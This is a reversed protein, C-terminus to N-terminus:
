FRMGRTAREPMSPMSRGGMRNIKYSFTLTVYRKLTMNRVNLIANDITTRYVSTNQNLIDFVYAKIEGRRNKFVEKAISANWIAFNQNFGSALGTTMTYDVDTSIIINEPLTYTIDAAYVHTYYSANNAQQVTNRVQNYTISASIGLDLKERFNYSLRLDETVSLNRTFNKVRNILNADQNYMIQTNTNFNGGQMNKIPFGLNINGSVNFMGSVNEPKTVQVGGPLFEIANSIRNQTTNYTLFAFLNRFKM